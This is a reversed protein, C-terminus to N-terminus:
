YIRSCTTATERTDGKDREKEMKRKREREKERPSLDVTAPAEKLFMRTEPIGTRGESTEDSAVREDCYVADKKTRSRWKALRLM